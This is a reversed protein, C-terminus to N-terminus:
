SRISARWSVISGSGCAQFTRTAPDIRAHGRYRIARRVAAALETTTALSGDDRARVISRAIRRSHREEGFEYIVDALTEPTM